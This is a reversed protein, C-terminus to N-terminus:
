ISDYVSSNKLFKGMRQYKWLELCDQRVKDMQKFITWKEREALGYWEEFNLDLGEHGIRVIWCM